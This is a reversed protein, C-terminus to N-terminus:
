QIPPDRIEFLKSIEDRDPADLPRSGTESVLTVSVEGQGTVEGIAVASIGRDNLASVIQRASEPAAVLLLAGSAICSLPNLGYHECLIRGEPVIHIASEQVLLATRSAQALEWLGTALGGETPDHMAHVEGSAQAAQAAAVVSIGPEVLFNACRSLFEAEFHGELEDARELAIIATAEIPVGRALIVVDGVKIGAPTVLKDPEVEGLMCGMVIPRDIGFTIETHGGVLSVDLAGCAEEIQEFVTTALEEDAQGEPMLLTALFWRPTGGMCAVDNANVHVAYWGVQDTAFTIPDTKAVLYRDGLDLVAADLGVGPGVIIGPDADSVKSLLEALMDSPLKGLPLRRAM